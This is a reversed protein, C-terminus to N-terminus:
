KRKPTCNARYWALMERKIQQEEPTLTLGLYQRNLDELYRCREAVSPDQAAAALLTLVLIM